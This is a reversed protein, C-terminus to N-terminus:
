LKIPIKMNRLSKNCACCSKDDACVEVGCFPCPLSYGELFEIVQNAEGRTVARPLVGHFEKITQLQKKTAPEGSRHREIAEDIADSVTWRTMGHRLEASLHMAYGFQKRSPPPDGWKFDDYHLGTQRRQSPKTAVVRASSDQRGRSRVARIGFFLLLLAVGGLVIAVVRGATDRSILYGFLAFLGLLVSLTICVFGFLRIMTRIVAARIDVHAVSRSLDSGCNRALCIVEDEAIHGDV